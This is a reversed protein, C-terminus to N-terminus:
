RKRPPRMLMGSEEVRYGHPVEFLDASPEVRIINTLRYVTDGFRPDSRRTMLVVQLEPSYWRESVVHIPQENGIAGAPITITTQTGEGRVGEVTREGLQETKVESETAAALPRTVAEARYAVDFGRSAIVNGPGGKMVFAMKRERDLTVHTGSSPDSITVLAVERQAVVPGLFMAQHERRVRGRSDRAISGSTHHSIRNGDALMQTVETVSDATYPADLVAKGSELPEIGVLGLDARVAPTGPGSFVVAGTAGGPGPPPLPVQFLPDQAAAARGVLMLMSLVILPRMPSM